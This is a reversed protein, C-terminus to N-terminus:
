GTVPECRWTVSSRCDPEERIPRRAATMRPRPRRSLAALHLAGSRSGRWRPVIATGRLLASPSQSALVLDCPVRDHGAGAPCSRQAACCRRLRSRLFFVHQDPVHAVLPVDREVVHPDLELAVPHGHRHDLGRGAAADDGVDRRAAVVHRQALLPEPPLPHRDRDGLVPPRVLEPQQVIPQGPEHPRAPDAGALAGLQM